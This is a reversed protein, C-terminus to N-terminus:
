GGGSASVITLKVQDDAASLFGAALGSILFLTSVLKM